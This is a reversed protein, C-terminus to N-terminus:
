SPPPPEGIAAVMLDALRHNFGSPFHQGLQHGGPMTNVVRCTVEWRWESAAMEELRPLTGWLETPKCTTAGWPSQHARVGTAGMEVMAERVKDLAWMSPHDEMDAPNEIVWWAGVDHLARAIILTRFLLENSIVMTAAEAGELDPFGWCFAGRDAM